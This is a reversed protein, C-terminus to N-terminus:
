EIELRQRPPERRHRRNRALHTRPDTRPELLLADRREIVLKSPAIRRAGLPQHRGIARADGARELDRQRGPAREAVPMAVAHLGRDGCPTRDLDEELDLALLEIPANARTEIRHQSCTREVLHAPEGRAPEIWTEGGHLRMAHRPENAMEVTLDRQFFCGFAALALCTAVGLPLAGPKPM